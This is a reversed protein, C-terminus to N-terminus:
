HIYPTTPAGSDYFYKKKPVLPKLPANSENTHPTMPLVNTEYLSKRGGIGLCNVTALLRTETPTLNLGLIKEEVKNKTM